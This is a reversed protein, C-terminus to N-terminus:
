QKPGLSWVVQFRITRSWNRDGRPKTFVANLRLALENTLQYTLGTDASSAFQREGATAGNGTAKLRRGLDQAYYLQIKHQWDEGLVREESLDLLVHRGLPLRVGLGIGHEADAFSHTGTLSYGMFYSYQPSAKYLYKAQWDVRDPATADVGQEPDRVKGYDDQLYIWITEKAALPRTLWLDLDSSWSLQSSDDEHTSVLSFAFTGKREWGACAAGSCFAALIVVVTAARLM